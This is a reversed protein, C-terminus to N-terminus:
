RAKDEKLSVIWNLILDDGSAPATVASGKELAAVKAESDLCFYATRLGQFRVRENGGGTGGTMAASPDSTLQKQEEKAGKSTEQVKKVLDWIGVEILAGKVVQLSDHDVDDLYNPTADPDDSKFLQKFIRTESIRAPSKSEAHEGVWHIYTKVKAPVKAEEANISFGEYRALVETVKGTAEDVRFSTCTIPYKAYLLGVTKGPALRFFDKSDEKRFDSEDIYVTRTLPIKNSGMSPDKPHLPKESFEVYGEPVNELTVKLPHLVVM